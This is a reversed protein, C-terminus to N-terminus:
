NDEADESVKIELTQIPCSDGDCEPLDDCEDPQAGEEFALETDIEPVTLNNAEICGNQYTIAVQDMQSQFSLQQNAQYLQQMQSVLNRLQTDLNHARTAEYEAIVGIQTAYDQAVSIQKAEAAQVTLSHFTDAILSENHRAAYHHLGTV